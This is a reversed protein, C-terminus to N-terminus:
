RRRQRVLAVLWRVCALSVLVYMVVGALEVPLFPNELVESRSALVTGVVLLPAIGAVVGV